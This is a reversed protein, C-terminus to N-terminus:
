NQMGAKEKTYKAAPSTNPVNIGVYKLILINVANNVSFYGLM